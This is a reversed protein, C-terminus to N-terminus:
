ARDEGDVAARRAAAFEVRDEDKDEAEAKKVKVKVDDEGTVITIEIGDHRYITKDYKRMLKLTAAKLDHERQTLAMREDRIDAYAAALDELPKIAHNEMGPLAAARPRKAAPAIRRHATTGTMTNKPRAM